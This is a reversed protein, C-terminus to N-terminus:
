FAEWKIKSYSKESEKGGWRTHRLNQDREQWMEVKTTLKFSLELM